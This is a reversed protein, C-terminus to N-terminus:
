IGGRGGTMNAGSSATLTSKQQQATDNDAKTIFPLEHTSGKITFYATIRNDSVYVCNVLNDIMRKQFAKDTPNGNTFETIFDIIEQRTFQLGRETELQIEQNKLDQLLTNLEKMRTECGKALLENQTAVAQIYATTTDRMDKECNAIKTEIGKIANANTRNEYHSLVCNVAYNLNCPDKFFKVTETTVWQEIM